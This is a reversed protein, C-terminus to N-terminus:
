KNNHGGCECCKFDGIGSVANWSDMLVMSLLVSMRYAKTSGQLVSDLVEDEDIAEHSTVVKCKPCYMETLGSEMAEVTM